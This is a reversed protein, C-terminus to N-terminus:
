EHQRGLGAAKGRGRAAQSQRRSGDALVNRPQLGAQAQAQELAARALQGQGFAAFAEQLTALAGGIQQLFREGGETLTLKRTSRQFLRLGLSTELRAVNKSVAAPTLGLRRAAASFSGAEASLVFSQLHNLAEM